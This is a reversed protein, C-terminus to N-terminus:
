PKAARLLRELEQRADQLSAEGYPQVLSVLFDASELAHRQHRFVEKVCRRMRNRAVASKMVKKAIRVALRSQGLNNPVAAVVFWRGRYRPARRLARFSAEDRIRAKRPLRREGPSM